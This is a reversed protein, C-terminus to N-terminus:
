ALAYSYNIEHSYNKLARPLHACRLSSRTQSIESAENGYGTITEHGQSFGRGTSDHVQNQPGIKIAENGNGTITEHGQSHPSSQRPQLNHGSPSNEMDLQHNPSHLSKQEALFKTIFKFQDFTVHVQIDDGTESAKQLNETIFQQDKFFGADTSDRVQNQGSIKNAEHLNETILQHDKLRAKSKIDSDQTKVSSIKGSPSSSADASDRVQNQGNIKSAEHLNEM